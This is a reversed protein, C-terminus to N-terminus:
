IGSCDTGTSAMSAKSFTVNDLRLWQNAPATGTTAPYVSLTANAWAQTAYATMSHSSLATGPPIWFTCAALDSFNADHLLVTVRQRVSSSNGLEFTATMYQDAVTSTSTSQLIVGAPTGAHKFFEFVGNSLQNTINGFLGWPAITGGSFTGNLSRRDSSLTANFTYLTDIPVFFQLTSGNLTVPIVQNIVGAQPISIVFETSAASTRRFTGSWEVSSPLTAPCGSGKVITGGWAGYIPDNPSQTETVTQGAVTLTGTRSDGPNAAITFTVSGPGTQLGTPTVTLFNTNNTVSWTCASGTSVTFTASGGAGSM